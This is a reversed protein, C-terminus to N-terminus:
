MCSKPFGTRTFVGLTKDAGFVSHAVFIRSECLPRKSAIEDKGTFATLFVRYHFDVGLFSFSLNCSRYTHLTKM